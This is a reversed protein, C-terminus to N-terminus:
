GAWGSTQASQGSREVRGAPGQDPRIVHAILTDVLTSVHLNESGSGLVERARCALDGDDRPDPGVVVLRRLRGRRGIVDLWRSRLSAFRIAPEGVGPPIEHLDAAPLM